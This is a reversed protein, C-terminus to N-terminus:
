WRAANFGAVTFIDAPLANPFKMNYYVERMTRRGNLSFTLNTAIWNDQLKQYGKLDVVTRNEGTQRVTQLLWLKKQDIIFHSGEPNGVVYVNKDQWSTQRALSLDIGAEQLQAVTRAVPQHYVDFALVLLEHVRRRRSQLVNDKFVFQSDQAYIAGNGASFDDFKIVLKGPFVIAEHWVQVTSDQPSKYLVATQDFTFYPDFKGAYKRHMKAIVDQGTLAPAKASGVTNWFFLLPWLLHLLM